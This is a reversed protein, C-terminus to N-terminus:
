GSVVIEAGTYYHRLIERFDAGTKALENAGYQSMGVGHGYGKVSFTVRGDAAEISFNASRLSFASRMDTGKVRTGYIEVSSVGGGSTHEVNGIIPGAAEIGFKDRVIGNFEELSYEKSSLFGPSTEDVSSDVSKLYPLNGGWVEACDETHGGSVAFYFAKIPQGDYTIILDHTAIVADKIKDDIESLPKDSYGQCHSPDTCIDAGNHEPVNRGMKSYLYTRAAVAQAKLAESEYSAPVEAAVAHIVYDDVSMTEIAGGNKVKVTEDTIKGPNGRSVFYLVILIIILIFFFIKKFM